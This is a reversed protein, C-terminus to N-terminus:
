LTDWAQSEVNTPRVEPSHRQWRRDGGGGDAIRMPYNDRRSPLNITSSLGHAIAVHIQGRPGWLGNLRSFAYPLTMSDAVISLPSGPAQIGSNTPHGQSAYNEVSQGFDFRMAFLPRLSVLSLLISSFLAGFLLIM